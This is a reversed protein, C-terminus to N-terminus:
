LNICVCFIHKANIGSDSVDWGYSARENAYIDHSTVAKVAAMKLADISNIGSSNLRIKLHPLYANVVSVNFQFKM